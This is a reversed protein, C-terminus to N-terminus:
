VTSPTNPRSINGQQINEAVLEAGAIMSMTSEIDSHSILTAYPNGSIIKSSFSITIDEEIV